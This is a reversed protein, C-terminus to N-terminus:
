QTLSSSHFQHLGSQLRCLSNTVCFQNCVPLIHFWAIFDFGPSCALWAILNPRYFRFSFCTLFSPLCCNIVVSNRYSLCPLCWSKNELAVNVPRFLSFNKSFTPIKLGCVRVFNSPWCVQSSSTLFWIQWSNEGSFLSLQRGVAFNALGAITSQFSAQATSPQFSPAVIGLSLVVLSLWSHNNCSFAIAATKMHAFRFNRGQVRCEQTSHSFSEGRSEEYRFRM